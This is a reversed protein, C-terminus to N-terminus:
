PCIQRNGIRVSSVDMERDSRDLEGSATITSGVKLTGNRLAPKCADPLDLKYRQNNAEIMVEDDELLSTIKGTLTTRIDDDARVGIAVTVVSGAVLAMFVALRLPM